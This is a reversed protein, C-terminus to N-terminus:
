RKKSPVTPADPLVGEFEARGHVAGSVLVLSRGHPLLSSMLDRDGPEGGWTTKHAIVSVLFACFIISHSM